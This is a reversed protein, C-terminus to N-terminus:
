NVRVSLRRTLNWALVIDWDCCNLKLFYVTFPKKKIQYTFAPPVWTGWQWTLITTGAELNIVDFELTFAQRAPGTLAVSNGYIPNIQKLIIQKIQWVTNTQINLIFVDVRLDFMYGRYIQVDRHDWDMDPHLFRSGTAMQLNRRCIDEQYVPDYIDSPYTNILLFLFM